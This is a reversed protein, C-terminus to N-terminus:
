FFKLLYVELDIHKNHSSDLFCEVYNDLIMQYGHYCTQVDAHSQPSKGVFM